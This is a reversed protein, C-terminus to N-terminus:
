RKPLAWGTVKGAVFEVFAADHPVYDVIARSSFVPDDVDHYGGRGHYGYHPGYGQSMVADFEVFTWREYNGGNRKGESIRDAPGWALFVAKKDMGERITGAIVAAKDHENLSAFAAPDKRIRREVPSGCGALCVIALLASMTIQFRHMKMVTLM